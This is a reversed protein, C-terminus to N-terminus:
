TRLSQSLKVNRVLLRFLKIAGAESNNPEINVKIIYGDSKGVIHRLLKNSINARKKKLCKTLPLGQM